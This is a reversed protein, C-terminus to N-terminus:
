WYRFIYYNGENVLSEGLVGRGIMIADCGTYSIMREASEVSTIDGNGIVPISVAEKVKKKIIDM